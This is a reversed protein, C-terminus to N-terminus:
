RSRSGLGVAAVDVVADPGGVESGSRRPPADCCPASRPMAWSPSASRQRATSRRRRRRRRRGSGPPRRAPAARARCARRLVRTTAVTILLRPKWWAIRSAPMATSVVATPSRYTSSASRACRATAQAALLAAVHDEEVVGGGAVPQEGASCSSARIAAVPLTAPRAPRRHHVRSGCTSILTGTARGPRRHGRAVLDGVATPPRRPRAPRCPRTSSRGEPVSCSTRTMTSAGVAPAPRRRDGCRSASTTAARVQAAVPERRGAGCTGSRQDATPDPAIRAREAVRPSWTRCRPIRRDAAVGEVDHEVPQPPQLVAPVVGGPTATTAPRRAASASSAGALEGVQLLREGVSRMAPPWAGADPVGAPGGVAARGVAVRVRVQGGVARTATIWLPMMSFKAASRASSSAAPM